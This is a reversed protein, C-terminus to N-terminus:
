PDLNEGARFSFFYLKVLVVNYPHAIIYMYRQHHGSM